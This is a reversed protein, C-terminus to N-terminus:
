GLAVGARQLADLLEARRPELPDSAIFKQVQNLYDPHRSLLRQMSSEDPKLGTPGFSSGGVHAVYVDDCLM